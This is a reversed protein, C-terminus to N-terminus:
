GAATNRRLDDLWAEGFERAGADDLVAPHHYLVLLHRDGAVNLWASIGCRPTSATRGFSYQVVAGLSSTGPPAVEPSFSLRLSSWQLSLGTLMGAIGPFWRGIRDLRRMQEYVGDHSPDLRGIRFRRALDVTLAGWDALDDARPTLRVCSFLNQVPRLRDERRRLAYFQPISLARGRDGPLVLHRRMVRLGSAIHGFSPHALPDLQRMRETMAEVSASDLWHLSIRGLSKRHRGSRRPPRAVSPGNGPVAWGGRAREGRVVEAKRQLFEAITADNVPTQLDEAHRSSVGLLQRTLELCCSWDALVHSIRLLLSDNGDPNRLVVLECPGVEDTLIPDCMLSEEAAALAQEDSGDLDLIRTPITRGPRPQWSPTGGCRNGVLRATLLPWHECVRRNADALESTSVRGLFQVQSHVALGSGHRRRMSDHVRLLTRDILDLPTLAPMADTGAREGSHFTGTAM